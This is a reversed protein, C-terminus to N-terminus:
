SVELEITNGENINLSFQYTKDDITIKKTSLDRGLNDTFESYDTVNSTTTIYLKYKGKPINTIDITADYWARTKDLNDSEPLAVKYLGNTISGLDYEHREYSEKNEFILTREVKKNTSLDM